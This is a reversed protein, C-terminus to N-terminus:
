REQRTRQTYSLMAEIQYQYYYGPPTNPEFAGAALARDIHFRAQEYGPTHLRKTMELVKEKRPYGEDIMRFYNCLGM